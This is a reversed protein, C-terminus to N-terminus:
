HHVFQVEKNHLEVAKELLRVRHRSIMENDQFSNEDVVVKVEQPIQKLAYFISLFFDEYSKESLIESTQMNVAYFGDSGQRIRYEIM